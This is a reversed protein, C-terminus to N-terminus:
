KGIAAPAQEGVGAAMEAVSHARIDSWDGDDTRRVVERIHRTASQALGDYVSVFVQRARLRPWGAPLLELPLLPDLGPFRRYADMVETRAQVAAVGSVRRVASASALRSWQRIFDQYREAIAALDWAEIPTRNASTPLELCSSRMFTIASSANAALKGQREPSMPRPSVWVGDYLPAFGHWRLYDRIARRQNGEEQPMSFAVVTWMGDWSDPEGGFAAVEVGGIALSAAVPATLRYASRRGDRRGELVGRRALRSITVRAASSTVGFQGLLDVIAASPLWARRSLTYDAILTITLGQPSGEQSRPLRVAEAARDPLIDDVDFVQPM